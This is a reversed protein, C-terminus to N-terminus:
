SVRVPLPAARIYGSRSANLTLTGSRAPTIRAIGAANTVASVGQGAVKAGALPTSKGADSFGAVKVTFAHGARQPKAASAFEIPHEHHAVSDVAFLLRDGRHPTIGCAGTTAYRDNVWIGWYFRSTSETDGLITKILFDMFSTDFKGSWRGQTAVDLAGAASTSKCAGKPAGGKTISGSHTHVATPTLLTRTKGEVRVSVTSGAALAASSAALVAVVTAGCLALFQRCHM